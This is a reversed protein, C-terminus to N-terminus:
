FGLESQADVRELDAKTRLVGIIIFQWPRKHMTGMILHLNMAPARREYYDVM